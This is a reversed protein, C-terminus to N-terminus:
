EWVRLLTEIQTYQHKLELLREDARQLKSLLDLIQGERSEKALQERYHKKIRELAEDPSQEHTNVAEDPNIQERVQNKEAVITATSAITEPSLEQQELASQPAAALAAEKDLQAELEVRQAPAASLQASLNEGESESLAKDGAALSVEEIEIEGSTPAHTTMEEGQSDAHVDDSGVDAKEGDFQTTPTNKAINETTDTPDSSNELQSIPTEEDQCGEGLWAGTKQDIECIQPTQYKGEQEDQSKTLHSLLGVVDQKGGVNQNQQQRIEEQSADTFVAGKIDDSGPTLDIEAGMQETSPFPLDLAVEATEPTSLPVTTTVAPTSSAPHASEVAPSLANNEKDVAVVIDEPASTPENATATAPLDTVETAPTAAASAGSNQEPAALTSTAEKTTSEINAPNVEDQHHNDVAIALEAASSNAPAESAVKKLAKFPNYFSATEVGGSVVAQNSGLIVQEMSSTMLNSKLM